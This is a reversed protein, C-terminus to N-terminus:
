IHRYRCIGGSKLTNFYHSSAAKRFCIWLQRSWIQVEFGSVYEQFSKREEGDKWSLYASPEKLSTVVIELRTLIQQESIDEQWDIYSVIEKFLRCFRRYTNLNPSVPYIRAEDVIKMERHEKILGTM